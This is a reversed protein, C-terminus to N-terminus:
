KYEIKLLKKIIIIYMIYIIIISILLLIGLINTFLIIFYSPNLLTIVVIMFIPLIILLKYVLRASSTTAALEKRLEMRTYYNKEILKFITIINGGTKNFVILSTTLYKIDDLPVREYLREFVTELDLGFMLDTKMKYFEYHLPGDMEDAVTEIAQVISKGAMFAHNMITLVKVLDNSIRRKNRSKHISIIMDPILYGVLIGGITILFIEDIIFLISLLLCIFGLSIGSVIKSALIYYEDKHISNSYYKKGYSKFIKSKKLFIALKICLNNFSFVIKEFISLSNDEEKLITYNAIRKEFRISRIFLYFRYLFLLGILFIILWLFIVIDKM